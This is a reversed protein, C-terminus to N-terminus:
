SAYKSRNSFSWLNSCRSLSPHVVKIHYKREQTFKALVEIMVKPSDKPLM